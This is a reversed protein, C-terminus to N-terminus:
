RCNPAADIGTNKDRRNVFPIVNGSSVKPGERRMVTISDGDIEVQLGSDVSIEFPQGNIV